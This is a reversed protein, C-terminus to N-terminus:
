EGFGGMFDLSEPINDSVGALQSMNKTRMQELRGEALAHYDPDVGVEALHAAIFYVIFYPDQMETTSTTTTLSTAQKYYEYKITHGTTLTVNPNFNLTFGDKISGTFWCVELKSNAYEGSLAPPIVQWFTSTGGSDVTRVYSAPFRMNTPATYTYTGATITKTGDSAGTLTTWLDRWTTEDYFEWRNIAANALNRALVYEDSTSDWPSNGKEVIYYAANIINQESLGAM